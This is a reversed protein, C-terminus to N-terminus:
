NMSYRNCSHPNCTSCRLAGWQNQHDSDLYCPNEQCEAPISSTITDVSEIITRWDQRHLCIGKRGPKLDSMEVENEPPFDAPAYWERISVWPGKTSITIYVGEGIHHLDERERTVSTMDEEVRTIHQLLRCWNQPTLRIGKSTFILSGNSVDRECKRIDIGTKKNFKLVRVHVDRETTLTFYVENKRYAAAMTALSKSCMLTCQINVLAEAKYLFIVRIQNCICM